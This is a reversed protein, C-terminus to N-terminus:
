NNNKSFLLPALNFLNRRWALFTYGGIGNEHTYKIGYKDFLVMTNLNNQYAIDSEGGRYIKFLKFENIEDNQIINKYNQELEKIHNPFYGTSLALVYSFM